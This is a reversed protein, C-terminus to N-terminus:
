RYAGVGVIPGGLFDDAVQTIDLLEELDPEVGDHSKPRAQHRANPPCPMGM